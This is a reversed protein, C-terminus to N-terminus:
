ILGPSKTSRYFLFPQEVDSQDGDTFSRVVEEKFTFSLRDEVYTAPLKRASILPLRTETSGKSKESTTICSM